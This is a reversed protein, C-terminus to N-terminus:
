TRWLRRSLGARRRRERRRRRRRPAVGSLRLLASHGCRLPAAHRGGGAARRRDAELAGLASSHRGRRRRVDLRRRGAGSRRGRARRRRRGAARQDAAPQAHLRQVRHARRRGQARGTGAHPRQAGHQAASRDGAPRRRRLLARRHARRARHGAARLRSAHGRGAGALRTQHRLRPLVRVEHSGEARDRSEDVARAVKQVDELDDVPEPPRVTLKGTLAARAAAPLRSLAHLPGAAELTMRTQDLRGTPSCPPASRPRGGPARTRACARTTPSGASSRSSSACACTSRAASPASTAAPASGSARARGLPRVHAPADPRRALRLRLPLGQRARHPRRLGREGGGLLLGLLLLWMGRLAPGALHRRLRGAVHPARPGPGSARGPEAAVAARRAAEGLVRTMDTILDKIVPMNGLPEIRIPAPAADPGGAGAQTAPAAGAQAARRRAEDAVVALQTNCALRACGNIRMGCSGCIAHRCSRRFALSGDQHDQVQMLAELVTSGEPLEVEYRQWRAECDPMRTSACCRSPRRSPARRGTRRSQAAPRQRPAGGAEEHPAAM